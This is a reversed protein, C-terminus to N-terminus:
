AAVEVTVLEFGSPISLLRLCTSCAVASDDVVSVELSDEDLLVITGSVKIKRKQLIHTVGKVTRGCCPSYLVNGILVAVRRRTAARERETALWDRATRLAAAAEPLAAAETDTLPNTTNQWCADCRQIEPEVLENILAWGPCAPDCREELQAYKIAATM